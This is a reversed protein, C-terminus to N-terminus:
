QELLAVATTDTDIAEAQNNERGTGLDVEISRNMLPILELRESYGRDRCKTKLYFIVAAPNGERILRFLQSEAEDKFTEQLEDTLERLEPHSDVYRWVCTRSCHFRVAARAMNGDTERLVTALAQSSPIKRRSL